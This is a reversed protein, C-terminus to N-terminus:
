GPSRVGSVDALWVQSRGLSLRAAGNIMEVGTVMGEVFVGGAMARGDGSEAKVALSYVGPAAAEGKSTKGDWNFAHRGTGLEPVSGSWVVQGAANTVELTGKSVGKPLDYIWAAGEATLTTDPSQATVVKGIMDVPDGFDGGGNSNDVLSKLLDNTLLQQEVSSM